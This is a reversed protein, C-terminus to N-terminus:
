KRWRRSHGKDRWEWRGPTQAIEADTIPQLILATPAKRLEAEEDNKRENYRALLEKLTM